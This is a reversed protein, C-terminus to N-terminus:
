QAMVCLVLQQGAFLKANAHMELTQSHKKLVLMCAVEHSVLLGM